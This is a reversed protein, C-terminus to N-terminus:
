TVMSHADRPEHLLVLMERFRCTPYFMVRGIVLPLMFMLLVHEWNERFILLKVPEIYSLCLISIFM